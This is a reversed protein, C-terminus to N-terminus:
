PNAATKLFSIVQEHFHKFSHSQRALEDFDAKEAIARTIRTIQKRDPTKSGYVLQKIEDKSKSELSNAVSTVQQYRIWYDIAQVPVFLIIQQKLKSYFDGLSKELELTRKKHHVQEDTADARDLDIGIIFLDAPSTGYFSQECLFEANEIVRSVGSPRSLPLRIKSQVFKIGHWKSIWNLYSPIFEYEAFGEGILTYRLSKM